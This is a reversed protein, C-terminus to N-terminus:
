PKEELCARLAAEANSLMGFFVEGSIHYQGTERKKQMEIVDMYARAKETLTALRSQERRLLEDAVDSAIKLEEVLQPLDSYSHRHLPLEPGKLTIAITALLRGMLMITEYDCEADHLEKMRGANQAIGLAFAHELADFIPMNRLVSWQEQTLRESM